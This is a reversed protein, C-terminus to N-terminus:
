ERDKLKIMGGGFKDIPTPEINVPQQCPCQMLENEAEDRTIINIDPLDNASFSSETSDGNLAQLLDYAPFNVEDEPIEDDPNKMRAFVIRSDEPAGFTKNNHKFFMILNQGDIINKVKNQQEAKKKNEVFLAKDWLNLLESFIIGPTEM